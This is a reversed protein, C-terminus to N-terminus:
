FIKGPFCKQGQKMLADEFRNAEARRWPPTVGKNNFDNRGQTVFPFLQRRVAFGDPKEGADL